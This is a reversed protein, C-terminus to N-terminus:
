VNIKLDNIKQRKDKTKLYYRKNCAKRNAIREEETLVKRPQPPPLSETLTLITNDAIVAVAKKYKERYKRQTEKRSQIRQEETLIERPTKNMIKNNLDRYQKFYDKKDQIIQKIYNERLTELYKIIEDKNETIFKYRQNLNSKHIEILPNLETKYKEETYIDMNKFLSKYNINGNYDKVLCPIYKKNEISNNIIDIAKNIQCIMQKKTYTKETYTDKQKNHLIYTENCYNNFIYQTAENVDKFFDENAERIVYPLNAHLVNFQVFNPIEIRM